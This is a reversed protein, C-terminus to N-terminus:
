ATYKHSLALGLALQIPKRNRPVDRKSKDAVAACEHKRDIGEAVAALLKRNGREPKELREAVWSQVDCRRWRICRASIRVCRPGRGQSTWHYLTGRSIHLYAAVGSVDMLEEAGM